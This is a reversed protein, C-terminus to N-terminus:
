PNIQSWTYGGHVKDLVIEFDAVAKKIEELSPIRITQGGCVKILKFFSEGFCDYLEPVVKVSDNQLSLYLLVHYLSLHKLIEEDTLWDIDRNATM